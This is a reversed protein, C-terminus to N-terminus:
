RYHHTRHHSHGHGCHHKHKQYGCHSYGKHCGRGGRRSTKAEAQETIGATLLVATLMGAILRLKM